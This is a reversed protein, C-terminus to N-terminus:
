EWGVGGMWVYYARGPELGGFGMASGGVNILNVERGADVYAGSGARASASAYASKPKAGDIHYKVLRAREVGALEKVRAFAERVGGRRDVLGHEFADAGTVVRGDTLMELRSTDIPRELGEQRDSESGGGRRAVVRERFGAYFEDVFGQLIEYHGDQMPEFPNAIDKNEASRVSRSYIGISHLGRSFNFTPIIVGISGTTTTPQAVISDCALSIYYGGSTAIEGMASVVPKGSEERFRRIENYMTDSGAVTGGPSNVRLLVGKVRPDREARALRSVLEDVPNSGSDFPLGSSRTADVILGDVDIMAIKEGRSGDDALVESEVLKSPDGGFTFTVSTPSCGGLSWAGAYVLVVVLWMRAM